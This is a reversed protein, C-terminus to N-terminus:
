QALHLYHRPDVIEGALASAAATYVSSLYVEATASGSRGKFNRTGTSLLREGDGVVAQGGGWCTSCNPNLVMAGAQLYTEIYGAALADL